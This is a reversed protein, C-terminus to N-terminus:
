GHDHEHKEIGDKIEGTMTKLEKPAIMVEKPEKVTQEKPEEEVHDMIKM